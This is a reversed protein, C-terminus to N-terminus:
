LKAWWSKLRRVTRTVAGGARPADVSQKMGGVKPLPQCLGKAPGSTVCHPHSSTCAHAKGTGHDGDCAVCRGSDLGTRECFPVLSACANPTDSGFNGDCASRCAGAAPGTRVCIPKGADRCPSSTSEGVNGDCATCGGIAEDCAAAFGGCSKTDAATCSTCVLMGGGEHAPHEFCQSDARRLLEDAPVSAGACGNLCVLGGQPGTGLGLEDLGKAAQLYDALGDGDVDGAAAVAHGLIGKPRNPAPTTDDSLESVVDPTPPLGAASGRFILVKGTGGLGNPEQPAGIAVDAFGDGDTDGIGAMVTAYSPGTGRYGLGHLGALKWASVDQLGSPSGGFLYVSAGPASAKSMDPRAAILLDGHGDGDVDRAYQVSTGFHAGPLSGVMTKGPTRSIGSAGNMYVYVAGEEADGAMPVGIAVDQRGDGDFDGHTMETVRANASACAEEPRCTPSSAVVLDLSRTDLGGPAGFRIRASGDTMSLVGVDSKGDGDLDGLPYAIVGPLITAPTKHPGGRSGLYIATSPQAERGTGFNGFVAIDGYSDGDLDGVGVATTSDGRSGNEGVAWDARTPGEPGGFFLLVRPVYSPNALRAASTEGTGVLVDDFGDGNVDGASGVSRGVEGAGGAAKGEWSRQVPPKSVTAQVAIPYAANTEALVVDVGNGHAEFRATLETGAADRAHLSDYVLAPGRVPRIDVSTGNSRVAVEAFDVAMRLRIAGSGEPARELRLNQELREPGNHWWEVLGESAHREICDDSESATCGRSFSEEDTDVMRGDRGAQVLGILVGIGPKGFGFAVRGASTELEAGLATKAKLKGEALEFRRSTQAIALRRLEELSKSRATTPRAPETTDVAKTSCAALTALCVFATFTRTM